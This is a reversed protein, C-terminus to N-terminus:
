ALMEGYLYSLRRLWKCSTEREHLREEKKNREETHFVLERAGARKYIYIRRQFYNAGGRIPVSLCVCIPPFLPLSSFFFFVFFFAFAMFWVSLLCLFLAGCVNYTCHSFRSLCLRVTTYYYFYYYLLSVSRPTYSLSVSLCLFSHLFLTSFLSVSLDTRTKKKTKREGRKEM